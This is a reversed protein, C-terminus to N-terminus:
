RRSGSSACLDGMPTGPGVQCMIDNDQKSLM